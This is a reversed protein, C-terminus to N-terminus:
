SQILYQVILILQTNTVNLSLVLHIKVRQKPYISRLQPLSGMQKPCTGQRQDAVHSIFDSWLYDLGRGRESVSICIIQRMGAVMTKHLRTCCRWACNGSAIGIRWSHRHWLGSEHDLQELLSWSHTETSPRSLALVSLSSLPHINLYTWCNLAVQM